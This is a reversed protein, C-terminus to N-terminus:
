MAWFIGAQPQFFCSKGLFALIFFNWEM